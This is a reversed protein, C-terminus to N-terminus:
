NGEFVPKTKTQFAKIARIHDNSIQCADQGKGEISIADGLDVGDMQRLAHKVERVSIPAAQALAEAWSQTVETLQDTPAVKNALGLDVCKQASLTQGEFIIEAAQKRGLARYLHWTIGGDPVLGLAAFALYMGADEAMVTLDTALAFGAGIGAAKGHIQSITIKPSAYIAEIAPKYEGDIQGSIPIPFTESLDAGASFGPGSGALIIVRIADDANLATMVDLIDKRLGASFSNYAKPRNLTIRTVFGSKELLLNEYDM